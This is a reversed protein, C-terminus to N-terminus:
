RLYLRSFHSLYHNHIFVNQLAGQLTVQKVSFFTKGELLVSYYFTTKQLGTYWLQPACCKWSWPCCWNQFHRGSPLRVSADCRYEACMFTAVPARSIEESRSAIRKFCLYASSRLAKLITNGTNCLAPSTLPWWQSVGYGFQAIVMKFKVSM